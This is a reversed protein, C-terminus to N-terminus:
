QRLNLYAILNTMDRGDFRPWAIGQSKMGDLMAPGHRWLASVMGAATLQKGTIRPAKTSQENHCAICRKSEFVRRGAAVSGEDKFFPAAWLDSVIERMEEPTLQPTDRGIKPAHNWMAAAIETLTMRGLSLTQHCSACGKSTWLSPGNAGSAILIRSSVIPGAPLNRLYVFIDTLDQATLEPWAFGMKAFESRMAAAHNWMADVLDVPDAISKWQSVAKAAPIRSDTLGHCESCHKSEFLRKGRAADGPKEFFRAAYFYAFLDMAGQDSLEGATVKRDRMAAWMTPAHNWMTAALDAPTFNRGARRGLDPAIRARQENVTHCQACSLSQFLDAGRASDAPITASHLALAAVTSPIALLRM